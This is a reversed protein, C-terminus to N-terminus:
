DSTWLRDHFFETDIRCKWTKDADNKFYDAKVDEYWDADSQYGGFNDALANMVIAVKDLDDNTSTICFTRMTHAPSVYEKMSGGLPLPLIGYEFNANAKTYQNLVWSDWILFASNGSNFRQVYTQENLNTYSNEGYLQDAVWLM